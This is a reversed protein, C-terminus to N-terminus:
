GAAQHQGISRVTEVTGLNARLEWLAARADGLGVAILDLQGMMEDVMTVDLPTRVIAGTGDRGYTGGDRLTNTIRVMRRKAGNLADYADREPGKRRM